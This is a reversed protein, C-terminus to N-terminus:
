VALIRLGEALLNVAANRDRNHVTGCLPCKWERDSLTLMANKEHCVNCLKSSAFFRDVIVVTRGYWVAKYEIMRRFEGWGADSIAKALCRNKVMNKVALDELVIVQNEVVIRKSEKHLVRVRINGNTFNTRYTQEPERRSKFRPYKARGEFFNRFAAELDRLSNQLAFKDAEALWGTCPSHKILTLMESSQRYGLYRKEATYIERHWEMFHNYVWRTCGIIRNIMAEQKPKLYIRVKYTREVM